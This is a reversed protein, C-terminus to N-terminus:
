LAPSSFICTISCCKPLDCLIFASSGFVVHPSFSFAGQQFFCISYCLLYDCHQIIVRPKFYNILCEHKHYVSPHIPLNKHLNRFLKHLYGMRSVMPCM